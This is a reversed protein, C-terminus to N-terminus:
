LPPSLKIVRTIVIIGTLIFVVAVVVVVSLMAIIEHIHKDSDSNSNGKTYHHIMIAM